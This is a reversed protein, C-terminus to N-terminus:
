YSKHELKLQEKESDEDEYNELRLSPVGSFQERKRRSIANQLMKEKNKFLQNGAAYGFLGSPIAASLYVPTPLNSLNEWRLLKLMEDYWNEEALKENEGATKTSTPLLNAQKLGWYVESLQSDLEAEKRTLGQTEQLAKEYELRAKELESKISKKNARRLLHSAGLWGGALSLPAGAILAPMYYSTAWRSTPDEAVKVVDQKPKDVYDTVDKKPINSLAFLSRAAAGAGAMALFTKLLSTYNDKHFTDSAQHRLFDLPNDTNSM